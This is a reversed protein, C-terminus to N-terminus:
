SARKAQELVPALLPALAASLEDVVHEKQATLAQANVGLAEVTAPSELARSLRDALAEADPVQLAASAELFDRTITVFNYMRPGFFIVCGLQGPEIPNHGGIDAFSGGVVVYRCLRYFIGLEGMTDALYIDTSAAPLEGDSRVSVALSRSKFGAAIEPGRAPHRPAVITLLDHFKKKLAVHVHAAIDEEGPHTSAFLVLPRAGAATRLLGLKDADFPLPPAGYKLNASVKVAKAGLKRLRAAEAENQAFCLAFASLIERAAGKAWRWRRFSGESMRANLLVAPIRRRAIEALMNPWFESESWIVFSPRWHDLFHAVWAPHDVPMYQHFAGEPLRDAMLKASTVTGTTVMVACGPYDRRVRAVLALLSLSEGVSAAHFWVLPGQGRPRSAQGRREPARARDEKGRAARKQLYAELLPTSARMMAQYIKLLM